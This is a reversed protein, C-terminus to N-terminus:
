WCFSYYLQPIPPRWALSYLHPVAFLPLRSHSIRADRPIRIYAVTPHLFSPRFSLFSFFTRVDWLIVGAELALSRM